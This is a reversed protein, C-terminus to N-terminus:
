LEAAPPYTGCYFCVLDVKHFSACIKCQTKAQGNAVEKNPPQYGEPEPEEPENNDWPPTLYENM